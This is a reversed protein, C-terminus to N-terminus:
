RRVRDGVAVCVPRSKDVLTQCRRVTRRRARGGMPAEREEERALKGNGRKFRILMSQHYVFAARAAQARQQNLAVKAMIIDAPEPQKAAYWALVALVIATM